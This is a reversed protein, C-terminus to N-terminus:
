IATVIGKLTKEFIIKMLLDAQKKIDELTAQDAQVSTHEAFKENFRKMFNFLKTRANFSDRECALVGVFNGVGEVLLTKGEFDIGRLGTGFVEDSMTKVASLIASLLVDNIPTQDRFLHSYYSTGDEAFINLFYIDPLKETKKIYSRKSLIKIVETIENTIVIEKDINESDLMEINKECSIALLSNDNELAIQKTQRFISYADAYEGLAILLQGKLYLVDSLITLEQEQCIIIVNALYRESYTLDSDSQSIKYRLLYSEALFLQSLVVYQFESRIAYDYCKEFAEISSSLDYNDLYTRGLYYYYSAIWRQNKSQESLYGGKELYKMGDHLFEKGPLKTLSYGHLINILPSLRNSTQEIKKLNDIAESYKEQKILIEAKNIYLNPKSQSLEPNKLANNCLLLAKELNGLTHELDAINSILSATYEKNGVKEAIEFAKNYYESADELFGKFRYLGGLMTYCDLRKTDMNLAEALEKYMELWGEYSEDGTRFERYALDSVIQLTVLPYDQIM